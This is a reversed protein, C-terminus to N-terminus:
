FDDHPYQTKLENNPIYGKNSDFAQFYKGVQPHTIRVPHCWELNEDAAYRNSGDMVLVNYFPQTDKRPLQDVGMQHIWHQSATCKVDWGYVVCKYNYRRHKAVQGVKFRVEGYAFETNHREKPVMEKSEELLLEAKRIRCQNLLHDIAEPYGEVTKIDECMEEADQHNICMQLYSSLLMSSVDRIDSPRRSIKLMLRLSACLLQSDGDRSSLSFGISILNRIMRTVTQLPSALTLYEPLVPDNDHPLLEGTEEESMVRGNRFVDIYTTYPDSSSDDKWRVLFHRPFNIPKVVVGFRGVLCLYLLSLSIPIGLKTEFIKNIYSNDANYYDNRNGDYGEDRLYENVIDLIQLQLMSPKNCNRMTEVDQFFETHIHGRVDLLNFISDAMQDLTQKISKPKIHLQPQFWSAILILLKEYVEFSESETELLQLFIQIESVQLRHHFHNLVQRGYYKFTLDSNEDDQDHLKRRLYYVLYYLELDGNTKEQPLFDDEFQKFNSPALEDKQYYKHSLELTMEKVKKCTLCYYEYEYKWDIPHSKVSIVKDYLDDLNRQFLFCWIESSSSIERFRQCTLSINFVDQIDISSFIKELIEPPLQEISM